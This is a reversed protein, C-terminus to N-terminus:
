HNPCKRHDPLDVGSSQKAADRLTGLADLLQGRANWTKEYVHACAQTELSPTAEGDSDKQCAPGFGRTVEAARDRVAAVDAETNPDGVRPLKELLHSARAFAFGHRAANKILCDGHCGGSEGMEVRCLISAPESLAQGLNEHERTLQGKCSGIALASIALWGLRVM